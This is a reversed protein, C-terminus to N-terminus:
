SVLCKDHSGTSTVFFESYDGFYKAPEDYNGSLMKVPLFGSLNM